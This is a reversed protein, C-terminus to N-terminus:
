PELWAWRRRAHIDGITQRCVGFLGALERQLLTDKLALIQLVDAEKLKSTGCREGRNHTDHLFKDAANESPTKWSLHIPSICSDHGKGCSHAAEHEPTPAPGNAVTCVYRHVLAYRGDIWVKGYGKGSKGYPWFLCSQDQHKLAVERLFRQPEGNTTGGGLPDGHKRLRMYHSGCYGLGRSPKGCDPISCLRSKAM